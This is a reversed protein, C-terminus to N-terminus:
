PRAQRAPSTRFRIAIAGETGSLASRADADAVVAGYRYRLSPMVTVAGARLELAGGLGTVYGQDRGDASRLVRVDADPALVGIRSRLRVGAGALLLTQAPRKADDTLLVGGNRHAAGAYVVGSSGSRGAFAYATVLQARDGSRYLNRGDLEDTAFRQVTLHTSLKGSRGVNNDVAVRGYLQNGPRYSFRHEVLPEFARAAHMGIRVGVATRGAVLTSSVSVDAGGGTGWNSVRFPLLDAALLGAVEAEEATQSARGTPALLATSVALWPGPSLTLRLETDTPGSSINSTGDALEVSGRAYAGSVSLSLFPTLQAQAGFPMTTLTVSRRGVASPDAFTYREVAVIGVGSVAQALAPAPTAAVLTLCWVMCSSLLPRSM